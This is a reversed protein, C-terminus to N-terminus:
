DQARRFFTPTDRDEEEDDSPKKRLFAPVDLEDEFPSAFEGAAPRPDAPAEQRAPPAETLDAEAQATAAPSAPEAAAPPRIPRVNQGDNGETRYDDLPDHTRRGRGDDLGTAVDVDDLLRDLQRPPPAVVAGRDLAGFCHRGEGCGADLVLEGPRLELRELDVTLLM